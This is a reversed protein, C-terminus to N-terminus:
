KLSFLTYTSTLLLYKDYYLCNFTFYLDHCLSRFTLLYKWKRLPVVDNRDTVPFSDAHEDVCGAQKVCQYTPVPM